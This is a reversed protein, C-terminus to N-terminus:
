NNIRNQLKKQLRPLAFRAERRQAEPVMLKEQNDPKMLLFKLPPPNVEGTSKNLSLIRIGQQQQSQGLIFVSQHLQKTAPSKEVVLASSRHTTQEKSGSRSRSKSASQNGSNFYNALKDRIPSKLTKIHEKPDIFYSLNTLNSRYTTEIQNHLFPNFSDGFRSTDLGVM